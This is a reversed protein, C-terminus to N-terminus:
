LYMGLSADDSKAIGGTPGASTEASDLLTGDDLQKSARQATATVIRQQVLFQPLQHLLDLYRSLTAAAAHLAAASATDADLDPAWLTLQASADPSLTDALRARLEQYQRVQLALADRSTVAETVFMQGTDRVQDVLGSYVFLQTIDTIPENAASDTINMSVVTGCRDAV